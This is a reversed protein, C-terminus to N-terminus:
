QQQTILAAHTDGVSVSKIRLKRSEKHDFEGNAFEVKQPGSGVVEEDIEIGFLSGWTYIEDAVDPNDAKLM